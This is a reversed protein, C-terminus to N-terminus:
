PIVGPSRKVVTFSFISENNRLSYWTCSMTTGEGACSIQAVATGDSALTYNFSTKSSNPIGIFPFDIVFGHFRNDLTDDTTDIFRLIGTIEPWPYVPEDFIIACDIGQGGALMAAEFDNVAEIPVPNHHPSRTLLNTSFSIASYFFLALVIIQNM